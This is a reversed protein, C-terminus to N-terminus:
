TASYSLPGTEEYFRHKTEAPSNLPSAYAIILSVPGNSSPLQLSLIFGTGETAPLFDSQKQFCGGFGHVKTLNIVIIIIIIIIIIVKNRYREQKALPFDIQKKDM